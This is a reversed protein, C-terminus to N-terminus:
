GVKEPRVPLTTSLVEMLLELKSQKSLMPVLNPLSYYDGNFDIADYSIGERKLGDQIVNSSGPVRLIIVSPVEINMEVAYNKLGKAFTPSGYEGEDTVIVIQEVVEKNRIMSIFPASAITGGGASIGQFSKEWATVKGLDEKKPLPISFPLNDFAYVYIAAETIGGVLASLQKGLEIAQTMSGSKDVFLATPIKIKGKNSIQTDTIKNLAEKTEDSVNSNKAAVNAKFASVNKDKQAKVLKNDILAKVEPHDMAGKENLSNMNNILEAPSMANILAVLIPATVKSVAGVAVTYPIKNEIILKAQELSDTSAALKKVAMATSSEPPQGKFLIADARPSPKIHLSAYLHKMAKGGQQTASDFHKDNAERKRLYDKVATKAVRSVKGTKKISKVVRSVQYPPLEQLLCYGVDRHYLQPSNLLTGVFLEKHDKVAGNKFYWSALRPYFFPDSSVVENHLKVFRDNDRHPTVLFSNLIELRSDREKDTQTNSM